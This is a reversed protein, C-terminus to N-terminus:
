AVEALPTSKRPPWAAVLTGLMFILGGIWLWNILPNYYIKFTAQNTYIPNWDALIIYLDGALTSYVGPVTMTQQADYFYDSRPTSQKIFRAGRNVTLNAAIVNRGDNSDWSSISQLTVTYGALSVSQGNQLTAQTQTQYLEIGIIGVAMLAVGLHIIFGGYRRRNLNTLRWFAHPLAEKLRLSRGRVARSYELVTAIIVLAAFGLGVLAAVQRVGFLMLVIVVVVSGLAPWLLRKGLSRSSGAGWTTLPAIGKLLLLLAFLPGAVSEYYGPGMTVQQGTFIESILPYIVGWLCAILLGMMVLNNMLFLGERSFPSQLQTDAGLNRWRLALLVLSILLTLAIFGFFLPGIASQSFAHVSSFVGSRTLFTGFIVLSYTLIMLIMNWRKSLGRKEQMMISHLFATGSIWPLLAAVEVPDWGWYGGWGLVDYAWRSGLLLGLSLFLWAVLSWRRTARIWQDDSRNTILAAIAYAYPIIFGVFGLYLAPPHFVMGPHRLLPNMGRGDLPILPLAGAPQFLAVMESGGATRWFRVFPNEVFIVLSLFFILTIAIVLIIWPLLDQDSHWSRLAVLFASLGLLWCWFLLSGSQGGWIATLKLYFPMSNSAVNYVYQVQYDGAVILGALALMSLSLLPFTLVAAARASEAWVRANRTVGIMAAIGSYIAVILTIILLGFGLNSILM